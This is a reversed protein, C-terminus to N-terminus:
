HKECHAFWNFKGPEYERFTQVFTEKGCRWCKNAIPKLQGSDLMNNITKEYNSLEREAM